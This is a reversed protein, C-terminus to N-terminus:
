FRINARLGGVVATDSSGNAPNIVQLDATVHFWPTIAVNYFAELGQEDNFKVLPAVASRLDDSFNYYFYGLGFSDQPRAPVLGKGGLGGTVYSQIPNPNGDCVAGKLFLGWGDGPHATSESLFHNFQFSISYSGNKQGSKLDAPLLVASLDASDKTSYFGGLSYSTTRGALKTAYTATLSYNVGDDFLDDPAYENTRDNPDYVMGTWTVPGTQLSAIGGFIVPPLVGSPPAVFAINMFRSNGWGGFFPDGALLDVVNIKGLMVSAHGGIKQTLFISTAVIEDAAGLPLIAGTNVPWLAGGRFAPLNGYRYEAHTHLGGGEWLGLKGTDVNFFADVRGGYEFDDNGDGAPMGQYFHTSELDFTLGHEALTTRGGGWDGMMRDAFPATAPPPPSAVVPKGDSGAFANIATLCLGALALGANHHEM